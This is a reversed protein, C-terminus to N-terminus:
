ESGALSATWSLEGTAIEFDTSNWFLMTFRLPRSASASCRVSGGGHDIRQMREDPEIRILGSLVGTRVVNWFPVSIGEM